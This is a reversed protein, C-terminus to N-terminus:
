AKLGSSGCFSELWLWKLETPRYNTSAILFLYIFLISKLAAAAAADAVDFCCQIHLPWLRMVLWKNWNYNIQRNGFCMWYSLCQFLAIEITAMITGKGNSRIYTKDERQKTSNNRSSSISSNNNNVEVQLTILNPKINIKSHFALMNIHFRVYWITSLLNPVFFVTPFYVM